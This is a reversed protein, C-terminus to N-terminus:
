RYGGRVGLVPSAVPTVTVQAREGLAEAVNAKAEELV